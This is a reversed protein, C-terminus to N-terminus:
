AVGLLRLLFVLLVVAVIIGIIKRMPPDLPVVDFLLVALVVVLVIAILSM